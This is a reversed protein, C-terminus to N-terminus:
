TLLTRRQVLEEIVQRHEANKITAVIRSTYQWRVLRDLAYLFAIAERRGRPQDIQPRHNGFREIATQDKDAQPVRRRAWGILWRHEACYTYRHVLTCACGPFLCKVGPKRRKMREIEGEHFGKMIEQVVAREKEHQCKKPRGCHHVIANETVNM